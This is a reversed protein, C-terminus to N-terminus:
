CKAIKLHICGGIFTFAKFELDNLRAAIVLNKDADWYTKYSKEDQLADQSEKFGMKQLTKITVGAEMLTGCKIIYNREVM